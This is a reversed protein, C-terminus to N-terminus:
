TFSEFLDIDNKFVNERWRNTKSITDLYFSITPISYKHKTKLRM